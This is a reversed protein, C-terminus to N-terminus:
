RAVVVMGVLGNNMNVQVYDSGVQFWKFSGSPQSLGRAAWDEVVFGNNFYQSPLADGLRINRGPGAGEGPIATQLPGIGSRTANRQMDWQRRQEEPLIPTVRAQQRSRLQDQRL